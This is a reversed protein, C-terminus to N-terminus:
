CACQGGILFCTMCQKVQGADSACFVHKKQGDVLVYEDGARIGKTCDMCTASPDAARRKFIQTSTM